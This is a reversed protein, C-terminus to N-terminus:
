LTWTIEYGNTLNFQTGCPSGAPDRYWAQYRKLDGAACGGKAALGITTLSSGNADSFRVQMRIVAGGACRLGDGFPSGSGGGTANNGQFYLGPQNPSMHAGRLALDDASISASGIASLVAGQGSSNACGRGAGGSNSCPCAAGSGDGFCYSAGVGDVGLLKAALIAVGVNPNSRDHFTIHSLSQGANGGLDIYGESISLNTDGTAMDVNGTGPYAGGLWDGGGLRKTLSGGGSFSCTVDFYCGGDSLQYIFKARSSSQNISTLWAPVTGIPDGNATSQFAWFGGTVTNRNGLHVIDLVGAQDIVSYSALLADNPVGATFNLARDSISRFGSIADPQADEFAHVIGNFNCNLPIQIAASPEIGVIVNAALIAYGANTNSRNQFTLSNLKEGVYASLDVHGETISLPLEFFAQDVNSTGAYPGGFWDGGSLTATYQEGSEFGFLVEFNGGGESIQYIFTAESAGSLTIPSSLATTQPSSQNIATMWTPITGLNDGDPAAEFPYLGGAVSNRDGLHVIDRFWPVHVIQYKNLLADNPVGASFDLGRDSISRYGSSNDANGDEGFHVIGNYNYNLPVKHTTQASAAPACLLLLLLLARMTTRETYLLARIKPSLRRNAREKMIDM